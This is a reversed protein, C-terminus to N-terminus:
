IRPVLRRAVEHRRGLALTHWRLYSAADEDTPISALHEWSIAGGLRVEVVRPAGSPDTVDEVGSLFAPVTAARAMRALRPPATSWRGPQEPTGQPSQVMRDGSPFAILVGGSRLWTVAESLACCNAAAARRSRWPDVSIFFKRLEPINGVIYNGLIKSDPRVSPLLAALVLGEIIGFPRNVLILVPGAVPINRLDDAGTAFHIGAGSLMAQAGSVGNTEMARRRLERMLRFAALRQFTGDTLRVRAAVGVSAGSECQLLELDTM